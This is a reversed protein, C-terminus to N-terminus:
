SPCFFFSGFDSVRAVEVIGESDDSHPSNVKIMASKSLHSYVVALLGIFFGRRGMDTGICNTCSSIHYAVILPTPVISLM